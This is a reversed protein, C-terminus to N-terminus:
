AEATPDDFTIDWAPFNVKQGSVLALDTCTGCHLLKTNSVDLLCIYSATGTADIDVDSQAGITVKRGGGADDAPGTFDGSDITVDALAYTSNGEAYTDCYASCATMKTANTKIVNLAADLVDDHTFKNKAM